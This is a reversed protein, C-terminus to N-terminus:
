VFVEAMEELTYDEEDNPVIFTIQGEEEYHDLILGHFNSLYEWDEDALDISPVEEKINERVYLEYWVGEGTECYYGRDWVLTNLGDLSDTIGDEPYPFQDGGKEEPSIATAVTSPTAQSHEESADEKASSTLLATLASLGAEFKESPPHRSDVPDSASLWFADYIWLAVVAFLAIQGVGEALMEGAIIIVWYLAGASWRKLLFMHGGILGTILWVAYLLSKSLPKNM